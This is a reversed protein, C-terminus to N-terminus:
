RSSLVRRRTRVESEAWHKEMEELPISPDEVHESIGIRLAGESDIRMREEGATKFVIPGELKPINPCYFYGTDLKM